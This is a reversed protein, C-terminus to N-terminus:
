APRALVRADRLRRRAARRLALARDALAAGAVRADGGGHARLGDARLVVGRTRTPKTADCLAMMMLAVIQAARVPAM